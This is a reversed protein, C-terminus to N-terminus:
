AVPSQINASIDPSSFDFDVATNSPTVTFTGNQHGRVTLTTKLTGVTKAIRVTPRASVSACMKFIVRICKKFRASVVAALNPWSIRADVAIQQEAPFTLALHEIEYCSLGTLTGDWFSLDGDKNPLTLPDAKSAVEARKDM